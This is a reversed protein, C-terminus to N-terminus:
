YKYRLINNGLDIAAKRVTMYESPAPTTGFPLWLCLFALKDVIAICTSGTTSNEHIRPYAADLDMKGIFIWKTPWKNPIASIMHLIRLLCFDYFCPQLSELQVWNNVSLGSPGPLSCHRTVSIKIYREGKEKISLKESVGLPM